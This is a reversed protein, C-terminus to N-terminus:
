SDDFFVEGLVLLFSEEVFFSSVKFLEGLFISCIAYFKKFVYGFISVFYTFGAGITYFVSYFGFYTFSCLLIIYIHFCFYFYVFFISGYFAYFGSYLGCFLAM